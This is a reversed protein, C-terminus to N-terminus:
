KIKYEIYFKTLSELTTLFPEYYDYQKVFFKDMFTKLINIDYTYERIDKFRSYPKFIYTCDKYDSMYQKYKVPRSMINNLNFPLICQKNTIHYNYYTIIIDFTHYFIETDYNTNFYQDRFNLLFKNCLYLKSTFKLYKSLDYLIIRLFTPLNDEM